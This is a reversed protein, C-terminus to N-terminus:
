PRDWLYAQVLTDLEWQELPIGAENAEQEAQRAWQLVRAPRMATTYDIARQLQARTYRAILRNCTDASTSGTCLLGRVDGTLHDHDIGLRRSGRAKPDDPHIGKATRCIWCRGKQAVYLLRYQAPTVKYLDMARGYFARWAKVALGDMGEPPTWLDVTAAM